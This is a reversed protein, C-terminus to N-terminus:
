TLKVRPDLWVYLLDTIINFIIYLLASLITMAKVVPFDANNIAQLTVSGLGPLGFFSELLLAGLILAPIQNVLNTIIPILANKLVHKFLIAGDSLGKARATRVYDQYVEDLIVVRYFRMDPGVSLMIWIIAPLAVYPVYDPFGYEYGSIEFWGLRYALLWQGLIIYALASISMMMVSTIVLGRDLWTGRFFAALAAVSIAIVSSLIFAPVSLTLSVYSGMKIMSLIHQKTVWSYGFDLTLASKLIHWYQVGLPADLGLEHRLEAMQQHTAHKGLLVLTPDGIVVNFLLFVIFTVGILVPLAYLLRRITYYYINM